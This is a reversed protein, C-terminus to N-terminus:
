RKEHSRALLYLLDSLRNLYIPIYRNRMMRKDKLTIMRREAKRAVTRAVDLTASLTNEGPLIFVAKKLKRKKELKEIFLELDKIDERDIRKRLKHAAPIRTSVESCIVMLDKQIKSIVDKQRRSKLLSKSLGLYSSLEDLVGCIEIRPSNKRVRGGYLLSTSGNDGTKTTIPM